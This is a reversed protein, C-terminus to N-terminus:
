PELDARLSGVAVCTLLASPPAPLLLIAHGRRRPHSHSCDPGECTTASDESISSQLLSEIGIQPKDQWGM